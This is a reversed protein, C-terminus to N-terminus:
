RSLRRLDARVKEALRDDGRRPPAIPNMIMRVVTSLLPVIPM